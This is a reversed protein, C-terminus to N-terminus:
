NNEEVTQKGSNIGRKAWKSVLFNMNQNNFLFVDVSTCILEGTIGTVSMEGLRNVAKPM